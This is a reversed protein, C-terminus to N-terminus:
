GYYAFSCTPRPETVFSVLKGDMIITCILEADGADATVSTEIEDYVQYQKEWPLAVNAETQEAGGNITYRITAPGPGRVTMTATGVPRGTPTAPAVSTTTSTRGTSSTTTAVASRSTSGVAAPKDNNAANGACGTAMVTLVALGLVVGSLPRKTM